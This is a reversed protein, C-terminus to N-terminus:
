GYTDRPGRGDSISRSGHKWTPADPGLVKIRTVSGDGIDSNIKAVINPAMLRLQSAWATSSTRVVVIGDKFSEPESHQAVVPGVLVSWKALLVHVSLTQNWGREQALRNMAKAIPQPDRGDDGSGSFTTEVSRRTRKPRRSITRGRAAHAIMTALEIGMDDHVSIDAVSSEEQVLEDDSFIM